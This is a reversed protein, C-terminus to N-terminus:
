GPSGAAESLLPSLNNFPLPTMPGRTVIIQSRKGYQKSARVRALIDKSLYKTAYASAAAGSDVLTFKRIKGLTWANVLVKKRLPKEYDTEHFLGHFHPLGSKHAETIILYRMPAGSNKRVRKLFKTIEPGIAAVRARFIDHRAMQDLDQSQLRHQRRARSLAVFHSEPSLTMTGFWTRDCQEIEVSAREKWNRARTILCPGCRRCPVDMRLILPHGNEPVAIQQGRKGPPRAELELGKPEECRGSVDWFWSIPGTQIAGQSAAEGLTHRFRTIDEHLKM